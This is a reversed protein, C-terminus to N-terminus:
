DQWLRVHAVYKGLTAALGDAENMLTGPKLDLGVQIARGGLKLPGGQPDVCIWFTGDENDSTHFSCVAKSFSNDV